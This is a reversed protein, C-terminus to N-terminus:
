LSTKMGASWDRPGYETGCGGPERGTGVIERRGISHRGRM